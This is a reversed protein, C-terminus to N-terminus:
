SDTPGHNLGTIGNERSSSSTASPYVKGSGRPRQASRRPFFPLNAASKRHHQSKMRYNQSGETEALINLYEKYLHPRSSTSFLVAYSCHLNMCTTPVPKPLGLVGRQECRKCSCNPKKDSYGPYWIGGIEAQVVRDEEELNM